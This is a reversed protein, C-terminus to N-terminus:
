DDWWGPQSGILVGFHTHYTRMIRSSAHADHPHIQDLYKWERITQERLLLEFDSMNIKSRSMIASAHVDTGPIECPIEHLASLVEYTWSGKRHALRLDAENIKSLLANNSTLFSNYLRAVCRFWYFYLPLQGTERLLCHTNTSRKVGLLVKLFSVHHIHAKTTASSKFTLTKTAWM